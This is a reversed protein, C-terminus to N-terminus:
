LVLLGESNCSLLHVIIGGHNFLLEYNMINSIYVYIMSQFTYSKHRSRVSYLITILIFFNMSSCHVICPIGHVAM